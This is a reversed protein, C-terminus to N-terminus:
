LDTVADAREPVHRITVDDPWVRTALFRRPGTSPSAMAALWFGPYPLPSEWEPLDSPEVAV